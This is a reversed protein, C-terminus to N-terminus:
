ERGAGAGLTDVVVGLECDDGVWTAVLCDSSCCNCFGGGVGELGTGDYTMPARLGATAGGLGVTAAAGAGTTTTCDGTEVTCDGAEAGSDGVDGLPPCGAASLLRLLVGALCAVSRECLTPDEGDDEVGPLM